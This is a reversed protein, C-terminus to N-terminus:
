PLLCALDPLAQALPEQSSPASIASLYSATFRDVASREAEMSTRETGSIHECNGRAAFRKKKAWLEMVLGMPRILARHVMLDAYRRIPSTFHAYRELALRFHGINNVSYIAQSQTRLIMQSILHSYPMKSAAKLLRTLRNQNYLQGKPM